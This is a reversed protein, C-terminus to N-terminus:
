RLANIVALVGVIILWIGLIYAIVRPWIMIIIGSIIAIIGALLGSVEILQM